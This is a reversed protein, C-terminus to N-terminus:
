FYRRLGKTLESAERCLRRVTKHERKIRAQERDVAAQEEARQEADLWEFWEFLAEYSGGELKEVLDCLHEENNFDKTM